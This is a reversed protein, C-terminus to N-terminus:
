LLRDGERLFHTETRPQFRLDIQTTELIFQVKVDVWVHKIDLKILHMTNNLLFNFLSFM